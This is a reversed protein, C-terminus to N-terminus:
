KNTGRKYSKPLQDARKTTMSHGKVGKEINDGRTPKTIYKQGQGAMDRKIVSGLGKQRRKLRDTHKKVSAPRQSHSTSNDFYDRSKKRQATAKDFYQGLKKDSIENVKAKKKFIGKVKDVAKRVPSKGHYYSKNLRSLADSRASRHIESHMNHADGSHKGAERSHKNGSPGLGSANIAASSAAKAAKSHEHAQNHNGAASANAAKTHLEAAKKHAASVKASTRYPVDFRDAAKAHTDAAKKHASVIDKVADRKMHKKLARDNAHTIKKVENLDLAERLEKFKKM